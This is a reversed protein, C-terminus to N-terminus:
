DTNIEPWAIIGHDKKDVLEWEWPDFFDPSFELTSNFILKINTNTVEYWGLLSYDSGDHYQIYATMSRIGEYYPIGVTTPFNQVLKFVGQAYMFSDITVTEHDCRHMYLLYESTSRFDYRRGQCSEIFNKSTFIDKLSM